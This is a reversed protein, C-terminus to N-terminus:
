LDVTRYYRNIISDNGAKIVPTKAVSPFMTVNEPSDFNVIRTGQSLVGRDGIKCRGIIAAGAFMVVGAGVIPCDAGFRGVTTNQFATFYNGYSTNM